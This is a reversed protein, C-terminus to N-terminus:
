SGSENPGWDDPTVTAYGKVVIPGDNPGSLETKDVFLKYHKGILQLAAQADHFEITMGFQGPKMGKVLHQKGDAILGNMDVGYPTLYQSYDGRAQEALRMLVENATMAKEAVRQEIEAKINDNAILRAANARAADDSSKPYVRKYAETQNWLQLYWNVFEQHKISLAM